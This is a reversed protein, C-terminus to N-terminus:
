SGLASNRGCSLPLSPVTTKCSIRGKQWIEAGCDDNPLNKIQIGERHFAAKLALVFEVAHAGDGHVLISEAKIGIDKGASTTVKGEKVMRIVRAVAQDADKIM